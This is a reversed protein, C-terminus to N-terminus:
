FNKVIKVLICLCKGMSFHWSRNLQKWYIGFKVLSGGMLLGCRLMTMEIEKDIFREIECRCRM